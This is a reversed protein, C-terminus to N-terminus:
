VPESPDAAADPVTPVEAMRSDRERALHMYVSAAMLYFQGATFTQGPVPDFTAPDILPIELTMDSVTHTLIGVPVNTTVGTPYVTRLVEHCEIKPPDDNRLVLLEARQYTTVTGTLVASSLNYLSM